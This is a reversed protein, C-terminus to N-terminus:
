HKTLLEIIFLKIYEVYKNLFTIKECNKYCM